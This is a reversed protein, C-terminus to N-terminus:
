NAGGEKTISQLYKDYKDPIEQWNEKGFLLTPTDKERGITRGPYDPVEQKFKEEQSYFSWGCIAKLTMYATRILSIRSKSWKELLQEQKDSSLKQFKSFRHVWILSSIRSGVLFFLMKLDRHFFKPMGSLYRDMELIFEKGREKKPIGLITQGVDFMLEAQKPKLFILNKIYDETDKM